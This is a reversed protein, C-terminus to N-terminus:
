DKSVKEKDDKMMRKGKRVVPLDGYLEHLQVVIIHGYSRKIYDVPTVHTKIGLSKKAEACGIRLLRYVDPNSDRIIVAKFM